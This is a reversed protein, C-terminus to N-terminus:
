RGEKYRLMDLDQRLSAIDSRLKNNDSDLFEMHIAGGDQLDRLVNLQKELADIKGQLAITIATLFCATITLLSMILNKM